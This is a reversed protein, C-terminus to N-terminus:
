LRRLTRQLKEISSHSLDKLRVITDEVLNREASNLAVCKSFVERFGEVLPLTLCPYNLGIVGGLTETITAIFPKHAAVAEWVASLMTYEKTTAAVVLQTNLLLWNYEPRPLFGTLIVGRSKEALRHIRSALRRRRAYDGTVVLKLSGHVSSETFGKVIEWLPEDPAWSAPVLIYSNPELNFSPPKSDSLDPLPDYVTLIRDRLALKKKILLKTFAENHSLALDVGWLLRKFPANVLWEKISSYVVFGSHVDAIVYYKLKDRLGLVTYLLPGQPLQVFVLEPKREFIIRRSYAIAKLYPPRYPLFLLELGLMAALDRTRRSLRSWAIFVGQM